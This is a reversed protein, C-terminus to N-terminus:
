SSCDAMSVGPAGVTTFLGGPDDDNVTVQGAKVHGAPDDSVANLMDTILPVNSAFLPM